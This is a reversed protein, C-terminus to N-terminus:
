KQVDSDLKETENADEENKNKEAKRCYVLCGEESIIINAKKCLGDDDRHMCDARCYVTIM